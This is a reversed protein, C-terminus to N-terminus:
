STGGGGVGKKGGGGEEKERMEADFYVHGKGTTSSTIVVPVAMDVCLM